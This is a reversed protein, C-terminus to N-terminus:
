VIGFGRPVDVYVVGQFRELLSVELVEVARTRPISFLVVALKYAHPHVIKKGRPNRIKALCAIASLEWPQVM